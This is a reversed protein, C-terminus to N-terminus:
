DVPSTGLRGGGGDRVMHGQAQGYGGNSVNNFGSPYPQVPNPGGNQPLFWPLRTHNNFLSISQRALALSGNIGAGDADILGRTVWGACYDPLNDAWIDDEDFAWLWGTVNDAYGAIGDVVQQVNARLEADDVFRLAGGAGM